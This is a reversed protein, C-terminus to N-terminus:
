SSGTSWTRLVLITQCTIPIIAPLAQRTVIQRNIKTNGGNRSKITTSQWCSCRGTAQGTRYQGASVAVVVEAIVVDVVSALGVDLRVLIMTAGAAVRAILTDSAAAHYAGALMKKFSAKVSRLTNQYIVIVKYDM